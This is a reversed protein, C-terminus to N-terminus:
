FQDGMVHFSFRALRINTATPDLLTGVVASFIRFSFGASSKNFGRAFILGVAGGGWSGSGVGDASVDSVITFPTDVISWNRVVADAAGAGPANCTVVTSSTFGTILWDGANPGADIHIFRGVDDLAFSPVLAFVTLVDAVQTMNVTTGTKTAQGIATGFTVDCQFTGSPTSTGVASVNYGNLLKATGNALFSIEAWAKCVNKKTVVNKLANINYRADGPVPNTDLDIFGDSKVGSTGSSAPLAAHVSAVDTGQSESGYHGSGGLFSGGLGTGTGRVGAGTGKGVGRLGNGDTSLATGVLGDGTAGNGSSVHAGDDTGGGSVLLALGSPSNIQAGIGSGTANVLLANGNAADSSILAGFSGGTTSGYSIIAANAGTSHAEIAPAGAGSATGAAYIAPVAVAVGVARVANGGSLGGLASVGNGTGLSAATVCNASGTSLAAIAGVNTGVGTVTLASGASATSSTSIAARKDKDLGVVGGEIDHKAGVIQRRDTRSVEANGADLVLDALRAISKGQQAGVIGDWSDQSVHYAGSEDIYMRNTTNGVVTFTHSPMKFYKGGVVVHGGVINITPFSLTGLIFDATVATAATRANVTSFSMGETAPAVGNGFLERAIDSVRSYGAEDSIEATGLTGFSRSDYVANPAGAVGFGYGLTGTAGLWQVYGLLLNDEPDPQAQTTVVDSQTIGPTASGKVFCEIWDVQNGTDLRIVSDVAPAAKTPGGANILGGSTWTLTITGAALTPSMNIIQLKDVLTTTGLFATRKTKVLVADQNLYIGWTSIENGEPVGFVMTSSSVLKQIKFGNVYAYDGAIFDPVNLTDTGLLVNVAIKLTNPDNFRALGNNHQVDQHEEVTGKAGPALDDLTMGHPNKTTAEGSGLMSRHQSDVASHRNVSQSYINTITINDSQDSTSLLSFSIKVSITRGNNSTITYIASTVLVVPAGATDGPAAWTLTTAGFNFALTGVGPSTASDVSLITVGEIHVPQTSNLAAPFPSPLEISGSTLAVGIGNATVKAVIVARSRDNTSLVSNVLPLANYAAATLITLRPVVSAKTNATTGNTEHSEPSSFAEDYVLLVYNVVGLTYDALAVNTQGAALTMFEGNPAYASGSSIDVRTDTAAVSVVLGSNVGRTTADVLIENDAAARQAETNQLHRNHVECGEPYTSRNSM